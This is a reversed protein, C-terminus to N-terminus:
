TIMLPFAASEEKTLSMTLAEELYKSEQIKESNTERPGTNQACSFWSRLIQLIEFHM